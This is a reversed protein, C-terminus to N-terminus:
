TAARRTSWARPNAPPVQPTSFSSRTKPGWKRPHATSPPREAMDGYRYDRGEIWDIQEGTREVVLLKVDDSCRRLAKDCNSKLATSRGGRPAHDATIVLKAGCGNVRDALADPSFGAFVISHIAGIRACALMAYAAAPIMPLYIIVRDGKGVGLDKLVNAFISVERHLAKYTIHQAPEEPSDPEWIIATQDGRTNLHRDICNESVNLTGDEFWKISVNDYAFSTTKVTSFPRIWDLRKGQEAWFGEPDSVSQEYLAAYKAADAHATAVLDSPPSYIPPESVTNQPKITM